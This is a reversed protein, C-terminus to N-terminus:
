VYQLEIQAVAGAALAGTGSVDVNVDLDGGDVEIETEPAKAWTNAVLAGDGTTLTTDWEALLTAGKKLQVKVTNTAHAAVGTPDLVKFSKVIAKKSNLLQLVKFLTDAAVVGLAVRILQANNANNLSM